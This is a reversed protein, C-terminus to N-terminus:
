KTKTGIKTKPYCDSKRATWSKHNSNSFRSLFLCRSCKSFLLKIFYDCKNWVWQCSMSDTSCDQFWWHLFTFHSHLLLVHVLYGLTKLATLQTTPTHAETCHEHVLTSEFFKVGIVRFVCMWLQRCSHLKKNSDEAESVGLLPRM